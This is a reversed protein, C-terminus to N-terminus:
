RPRAGEAFLAFARRLYLRWDEFDPWAWDRGPRTVIAGFAVDMLMRAATPIHDIRVRGLAQQRELWAVVLAHTATRGRSELLQELEPFPALDVMLVRIFSLRRRNRADDLDICFLRGLAEALPLADYEPRIDIMSQRHQDIVAGMLALKGPFLRYLTKKSIRCRAAVADMTMGAYGTECVLDFAQAVIREQQVEDAVVKPRGRGRPALGPGAKDRERLM